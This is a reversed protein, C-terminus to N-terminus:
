EVPIGFFRRTNENIAAHFEDWSEGRLEAIRRATLSAMWPKCPRRGRHPEPSLFPADTEVMIRDRPVLQAAAQVERANRYTVVGTFSIMAGFDLVRRADDASGTFCHFVFRSPPLRTRRLRFILDEFAERCHLVIPLDIPSEGAAASEIVGLQESLVRDQVDRPPDEYHNDLGLEGWAICRRDRATELLAPWDHPGQHSYLPHVGASCWVNEHQHAIALAQRCDRTTTSITIVGTVGADRAEQLTEPIRGAFDPFTLHCHTDIVGSFVSEWVV